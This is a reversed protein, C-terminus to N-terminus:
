FKGVATKSKADEESRAPDIIPAYLTDVGNEEEIHKSFLGKLGDVAGGGPKSPPSLVGDLMNKLGEQSFVNRLMESMVIDMIQATPIGGESSINTLEIRKIPKLKRVRQDQKRYVLDINLNTIVLKKILVSTSKEETAATTKERATSEKLNHMITSWNGQTSKPAEFELSLYVNDLTMSDIVIHDDLFRSLPTNVALTNVELAQPLISGPPNGIRIKTVEFGPSLLNLSGISVSVRARKALASSIWSPIANWGIMFILIFGVLVSGAIILFKRM